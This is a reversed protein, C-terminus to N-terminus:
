FTNTIKNNIIKLNLKKKLEKKYQTCAFLYWAMSWEGWFLDVYIDWTLFYIYVLSVQFLVSYLSIPLKNNIKFGAIPLVFASQSM